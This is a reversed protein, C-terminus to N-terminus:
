GHSRVKAPEYRAGRQHRKAQHCGPDGPGGLCWDRQRAGPDDRHDVAIHDGAAVDFVARAQERQGGAERRRVIHDPAQLVLDGILQDLFFQTQLLCLSALDHHRVFLDGTRDMVDFLAVIHRIARQPLFEACLVDADARQDILDPHLQAPSLNQALLEGVLQGDGIGLDVILHPQMLALGALEFITHALNKNRDVIGGIGGVRM